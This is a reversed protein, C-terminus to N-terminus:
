RGDSAEQPMGWRAKYEAIVKEPFQSRWGCGCTFQAGDFTTRPMSLTCATDGCYPAYGPLQMLNDRVISSMFQDPTESM